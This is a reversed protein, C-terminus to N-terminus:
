GSAAMPLSSCCWRCCPWVHSTMVRSTSRYRDKTIPLERGSLVGCRSHQGRTPLTLVARRLTGPCQLPPDADQRRRQLLECLYVSCLPCLPTNDLGQYLESTRQPHPVECRFHASLEGVMGSANASWSTAGRHDLEYARCEAFYFRPHQVRATAPHPCCRLDYTICGELHQMLYDYGPHETTLVLSPDVRDMEERIMRTAEAVAKQWQTIGPEQFTHTHTEDYCAWGGHGYEDLRIGDAGTEAMVRGMTTAVWERMEALDHCPNWVHYDTTKKGDVGVVGWAEGYKGGIENNGDLRFPDTYLTVLAGMDKCTRVADRFAPLGGFRENYGAYDGPQNNWMMQGTVPDRRLLAGGNIEAPTMVTELQDLPTNWPGLPVM